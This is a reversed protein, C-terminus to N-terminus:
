RAGKLLDGLMAESQGNCYVDATDIFNVGQERAYAVMSRAAALDTQDDFMMTGLCLVSIKLQSKGLHRYQM